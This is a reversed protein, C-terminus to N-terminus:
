IALDVFVAGHDSAAEAERTIEAFKPWKAPRVGPWMGKRFIGGGTATAFLAPSMLIYDFKNAATASGFTGPRGGDDFAPVAAAEQLDTQTLLAALPANAPSDNLDGMIAVLDFGEARRADYIAKVREAQLKRRANSQTQSGLKSKFHNVMVLLTRGGPLAVEFEPCDRSFITRGGPDEDDVHSRLRGIPLGTRSMLGVDIGRPDNGDIVMVHRYATGGMAPLLVNNFEALSPRSEAEIIGIIDANVEAIVKATMRMAVVNVPEVRLEVFGVWDARGSAIVDIGGAQPRRVLAGRNRRLQAFPGMDSNEMGLEIMLAAIELKDAPSYFAQNLLVNLRGFAEVIPTGDTPDDFNLAKARAFLNEVNFSAIRM